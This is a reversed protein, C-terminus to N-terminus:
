WERTSWGLNGIGWTERIYFDFNPMVKTLSDYVIRIEENPKNLILTDLNQTEQLFGSITGDQSVLNTDDRSSTNGMGDDNFYHHHIEIDKMEIHVSDIQPQASSVLPLLLQWCVACVLLFIYKM